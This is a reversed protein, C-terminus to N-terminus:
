RTYESKCSSRQTCRQFTVSTLWANWTQRSQWAKLTTGARLSRWTYIDEQTVNAEYM